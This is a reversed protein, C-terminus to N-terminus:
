FLDPCGTPLRSIRAMIHNYREAVTTADSIAFKTAALVKIVYFLTKEERARAYKFVRRRLKSRRSRSGCEWDLSVGVLWISRLAARQLFKRFM